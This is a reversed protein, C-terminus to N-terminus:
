EASNLEAARPALVREAFQRAEERIKLTETPLLYDDFLRVSTRRLGELTSPNTASM